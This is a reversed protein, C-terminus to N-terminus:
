LPYAPISACVGIPYGYQTNRGTISDDIEVNSGHKSNQNVVIAINM